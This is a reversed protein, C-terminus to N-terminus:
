EPKNVNLIQLIRLCVTRYEKKEEGEAENQSTYDMRKREPLNPVKGHKGTHLRDVHM